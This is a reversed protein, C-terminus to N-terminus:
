RGEEVQEGLVDRLREMGLRYIETADGQFEENNVVAPITLVACMTKTTPTLMIAGGLLVFLVLFRKAWPRIKAMEEAIDPIYSIFALIASIVLAFGSIICCGELVGRISDM